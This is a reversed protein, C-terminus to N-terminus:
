TASSRASSLGSRLSPSSRWLAGGCRPCVLPDVEYIKKLLRARNRRRRRAFGNRYIRCDLFREVTKEAVQRLPGYEKEYCYPYTEKFEPWYSKLCQYFATNEPHRQRYIGQLAM